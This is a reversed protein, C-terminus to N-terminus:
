DGFDGVLIHPHGAHDHVYIRDGYILKLNDKTLVENPTGFRSKSGGLLLIKHCFHVIENLDHTVMLITIKQERNLKELLELIISQAAVDISATPEDLILLDPDAVLARAIMVRQQQGGSLARFPRESFEAMNVLELIKLTKEWHEKQPRKLWGIKSYLGMLVVERVLAPFHNDNKNKQPVYGINQRFQQNQRMTLGRFHIEGSIIPLRGLIGKLLTSKGSGNPGVIGIFEGKYAQFSVNSLALIGPSGSTGGYGLTLDSIGLITQTEFNEAIM